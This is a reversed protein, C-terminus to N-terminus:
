HALVFLEHSYFYYNLILYLLYYLLWIIVYRLSIEQMVLHTLAVDYSSIKENSPKQYVLLFSSFFLILGIILFIISYKLIYLYEFYM